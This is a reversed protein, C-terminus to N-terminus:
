VRPMPPTTPTCSIGISATMSTDQGDLQFPLRLVERIREVTQLPDAQGQRLMLILAFEDGHLRGLTDSVNLCGTLRQALEALMQDGLLHGWTENVNNFDDLDVTVM